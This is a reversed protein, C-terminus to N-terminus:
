RTAAVRARLGLLMRRTMVFDIPDTIGRWGIVNAATSPFDIRERVILRTADGAVPMLVFAWTGPGPEDTRPHHARLVLARERDIAHVRYYPYGPPGLRVTDGAALHQWAPVIRDANRMRCGVMNELLEYSYLGGREQGLQVLWPWVSAPPAPLTIARTSCLRAGPVVEDGPLVMRDEEDTAGWRRYWRRTIPSSILTALIALAGVGEDGLKRLFGLPGLPRATAPPPDITRHIEDDKMHPDTM